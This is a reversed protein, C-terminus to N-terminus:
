QFMEDKTRGAVCVSLRFCRRAEMMDDRMGVEAETLSDATMEAGSEWTQCRM